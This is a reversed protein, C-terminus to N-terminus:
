FAQSKKHILFFGPVETVCMCAERQSSKSSWCLVSKQTWKEARLLVTIINKRSGFIFNLIKSLDLMAEELTQVM